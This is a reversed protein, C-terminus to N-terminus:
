HLIDQAWKTWIIKHHNRHNSVMPNRCQCQKSSPRTTVLSSLFLSITIPQRQLKASDYTRYDRTHRYCPDIQYWPQIKARGRPDDFPFLVTIDHRLYQCQCSKSMGALLYRVTDVKRSNKCCVDRVTGGFSFLLIVVM